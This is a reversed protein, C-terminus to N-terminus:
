KVTILENLTALKNGEADWAELQLQQILANNNWPAIIKVIRLPEHETTTSIYTRDRKTEEALQQLLLEARLRLRTNDAATVNAYISIGVGFCSMIIVMAILSELLM